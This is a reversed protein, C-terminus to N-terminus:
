SFDRLRRIKRGPFAENDAIKKEIIRVTNRMMSVFQRGEILKRKADELAEDWGQVVNKVQTQRSM